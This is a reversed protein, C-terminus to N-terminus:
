GFLAGWADGFFRPWLWSWQGRVNEPLVTEPLAFRMILEVVLMVVLIVVLIRVVSQAARADKLIFVAVSIATGILLIVGFIADIKGMYGSIMSLSVCVLLTYELVWLAYGLVRRSIVEATRVAGYKGVILGALCVAIVVLTIIIIVPGLKFFGNAVLPNNIM